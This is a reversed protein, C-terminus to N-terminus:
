KLRPIVKCSLSTGGWRTKAALFKRAFVEDIVTVRPAREDDAETFFRGRLIPIRMTKLYDPEVVYSIAWNMDNKSSPKPQNDLWFLQEDDM